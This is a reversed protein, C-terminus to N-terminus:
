PSTLFGNLFLTILSEYAENFEIKHTKLFKLNIVTRVAAIYSSLAVRANINHFQGAAIGKEIFREAFKIRAERRKEFTSWLEPYYRQLDQFINVNASLQIFIKTLATVLMERSPHPAHFIDKVLKDMEENIENLCAAVLDEKGSFYKYVTKKSIGMEAALRDLSVKKFGKDAAAKRFNNVIEAKIKQEKLYM